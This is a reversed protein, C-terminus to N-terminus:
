LQSYSVSSSRYVPGSASTIMSFYTVAAPPRFAALSDPLEPVTISTRTVSMNSISLYVDSASSLRIDAFVSIMTADPDVGTWSFTPTPTDTGSVTLNPVALAQSFDFSQNSLTTASPGASLYQSSSVSTNGNYLSSSVFVSHLFHDGLGPIYPVNVTTSTPASSLSHCDNVWVGGKGSRGQYVDSCLFYATSPMDSIQYQIFSVPQDVTINVTMGDTFTQDLLYGYGISTDNADKGIVFISLKGDSQLDHPTITITQQTILGNSGLLQLNTIVENHTIGSIANTVNLTLTGLDFSGSPPQCGDVRLTVPGNVDYRVDLSYTTTTAGSYLCSFAATVTANAPADSFTIQGNADTTGCNKMAGNRDGLVVAVDAMKKGRLDTVTVLPSSSGGSNSSGRCGAFLTTLLIIFIGYSVAKVPKLM